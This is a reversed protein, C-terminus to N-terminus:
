LSGVPRRGEQRLIIELIERPPRGKIVVVEKVSFSRQEHTATAVAVNCVLSMM